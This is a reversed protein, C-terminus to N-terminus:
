EAKKSTEGTFDKQCSKKGWHKIIFTNMYKFASLILYNLSYEYVRWRSAATLMKGYKKWEEENKWQQLFNCVSITLCVGKLSQAHIEQSNQLERAFCLIM